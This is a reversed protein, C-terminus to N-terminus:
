LINPNYGVSGIVMSGIVEQGPCGLIPLRITPTNGGDSSYPTGISKLGKGKHFNWTISNNGVFYVM